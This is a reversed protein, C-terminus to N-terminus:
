GKSTLGELDARVQSKLYKLQPSDEKRPWELDVPFSGSTLAVASNTRSTSTNAQHRFVSVQRDLTSSTSERRLERFSRLTSHGQGSEQLKYSYFRIM